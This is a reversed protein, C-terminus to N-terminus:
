ESRGAMQPSPVIPERGFVFRLGRVLASIAHQNYDIRIQSDNQSRSFGGITRSPSLLGATNHTEYQLSILWSYGMRARQRYLAEKASDGNEQTLQVADGLGELYSSARLAVDRLLDEM